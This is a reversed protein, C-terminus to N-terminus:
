TVQVVQTLALRTVLNFKDPRLVRFAVSILEVMCSIKGLIAVTDAPQQEQRLLEVGAVAIQGVLLFQRVVQGLVQQRLRQVRLAIFAVWSKELKHLFASWGKFGIRLELFSVQLGAPGEVTLQCFLNPIGLVQEFSNRFSRQPLNWRV